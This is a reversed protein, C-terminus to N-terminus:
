DQGEHNTIPDFNTYGLTLNKFPLFWITNYRMHFNTILVKWILLFNSTIVDNQSTM